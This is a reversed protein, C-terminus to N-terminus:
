SLVEVINGNNVFIRKVKFGSITVFIVMLDNGEEDYVLEEDDNSFEISWIGQYCSRKPANVSMVSRMHSKRKASFGVWNEDIGVIM